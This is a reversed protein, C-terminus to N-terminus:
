QYPNCAHLFHKYINKFLFKPLDIGHNPHKFHYKTTLANVLKRILHNAYCAAKLYVFTFNSRNCKQAGPPFNDLNRLIPPPPHPNNKPQERIIILHVQIKKEFIQLKIGGVILCLLTVSISINNM